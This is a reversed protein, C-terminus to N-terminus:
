KAKAKTKTWPFLRSWTSTAEGSATAEGGSQGNGNQVAGELGSIMAIIQAFAAQQAAPWPGHEDRATALRATIATLRARDVASHNAVEGTIEALEHLSRLLLLNLEADVWDLDEVKALSRRRVSKAEALQCKGPHDEWAIREKEATAM